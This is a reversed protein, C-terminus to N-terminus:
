CLDSCQLSQGRLSATDPHLLKLYAPVVTEPLPISSPLIGKFARGFLPTRVRGPNLCNFRYSKNPHEGQWMAAAYPLARKAMGYAHWNKQDEVAMDCTSFVISAAEARRLLPLMSQTLMNPATLHIDLMNRFDDHKAYQMPTCRKFSSACHILGDLHPIQEKLALFLADYQEFKLLDFPVGLCRGGKSEIADCCDGLAAEDIDLAVVNVGHCALADILAKGIGSAAGTVLVIRASFWDGQSGSM